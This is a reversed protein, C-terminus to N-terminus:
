TKEEIKVSQLCKQRFLAKLRISAPLARQTIVSL